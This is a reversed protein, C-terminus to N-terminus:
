YLAMLKNLNIDLAGQSNSLLRVVLKSNIHYHLEIIRRRLTIICAAGTDRVFINYPLIQAMFIFFVNGAIVSHYITASNSNTAFYLAYLNKIRSDGDGEMCQSM